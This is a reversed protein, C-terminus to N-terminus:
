SFTWSKYFEWLIIGGCISVNLSHKTGSQPIELTQDCISIVEESVGEVENGFVLAYGTKNNFSIAKEQLKTSNHTQEIAITTFNENKLFVISEKTKKFYKWKVTNTAGLATKRIERHPPVATIGCLFIAELRFADATRFFSGINNLSRINDLVVIIPTKESKKYADENIRNLEEMSKKLM